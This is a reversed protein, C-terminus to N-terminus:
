QTKRYKLRFGYRNFRKGSYCSKCSGGRFRGLLSFAIDVFYKGAGAKDLMAGFLVFLYVITASVDLPVGYIGETSLTLQGLFRNVSVGKFAIVAPMYPGFFAYLIFVSAIISLAPGLSRRAAELLLIIVTFGVILDRPLPSGQRTSIGVYDFAIYLAAVAAVAALIM